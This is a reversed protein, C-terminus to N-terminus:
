RSAHSVSCDSAGADIVKQLISRSLDPFMGVLYQDLRSGEVKRKVTLDIPKAPSPLPLAPPQM